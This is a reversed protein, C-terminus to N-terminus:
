PRPEEAKSEATAERGTMIKCDAKAQRLAAIDKETFSTGTLDV